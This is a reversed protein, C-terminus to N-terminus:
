INLIRKKGENSIGILPEESSSPLNEDVMTGLYALVGDLDKSMKLINYGNSLYEYFVSFPYSNCLSSIEYNCDNYFKLFSKYMGPTIKKNIGNKQLYFHIYGNFIPRYNENDYYAEYIIRAIVYNEKCLNALVLADKESDIYGGGHLDQYIRAETGLHNGIGFSACYGLIYQTDTLVLIAGHEEGSNKVEHIFSFFDFDNILEYLDFNYIFKRERDASYYSNFVMNTIGNNKGM